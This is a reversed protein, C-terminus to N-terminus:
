KNLNEATTNLNTAAAAAEADKKAQKEAARKEAREKRAAEAAAARAIEAEKKAAALKAKEAMEEAEIKEGGLSAWFKKADAAVNSGAYMNKVQRATNMASNTTIVSNTGTMELYLHANLLESQPMWELDNGHEAIIVSVTQIAQKSNGQAQEILAKLYLAAAKSSLEGRITEATAIDNETIAVLALTSKAKEVKDPDPSASLTAACERVNSFDGLKRHSEMLMIFFDDLNNEIAMYQTRERMLPEIASIFGAYDGQNYIGAINELIVAFMEELKAGRDLDPKKFIETIKEASIVNQERYFDFEEKSMSFGLSKIKNLPVTMNKTSKPAQFTLNGGELRQLYVSAKKGNAAELRSPTGTQVPTDQAIAVTASLAVLGLLIRKM